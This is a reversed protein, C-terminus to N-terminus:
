LFKVNEYPYFHHISYKRLKIQFCTKDPGKQRSHAPIYAEEEQQTNPQHFCDQKKWNRNLMYLVYESKFIFCIVAKFMKLFVNESTRICVSMHFSFGRKYSCKKLFFFFLAHTQTAGPSPDTDLDCCPWHYWRFTSSTLDFTVLITLTNTFIHPCVSFCTSGFCYTWFCVTKFIQCFIM